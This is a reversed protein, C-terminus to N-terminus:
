AVALQSFIAGECVALGLLPLFVVNLFELLRVDLVVGLLRLICGHDVRVVRAVLVRQVVECLGPRM